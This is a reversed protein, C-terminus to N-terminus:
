PWPTVGSDIVAVGVGSGDFGLDERVAAAGIAASTREMSGAAIRDVSVRAVLPSRALVLLLANPLEIVQANIGTLTRLVTGTVSQILPLLLGPSATDVARVIVRSRGLLNRSATQALPDHGGGPM